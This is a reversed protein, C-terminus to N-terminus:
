ASPFQDCVAGAAENVREVEPTVQLGEMVCERRAGMRALDRVCGDTDSVSLRM